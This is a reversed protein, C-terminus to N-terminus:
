TLVREIQGCHVVLLSVVLRDTVGAEIIGASVEAQDYGTSISTCTWVARGQAVIAIFAYTISSRFTRARGWLDALTLITTDTLLTVRTAQSAKARHIEM